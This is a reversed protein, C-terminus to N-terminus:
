QKLDKRLYDRDKNNSFTRSNKFNSIKEHLEKIEKLESDSIKKNQYLALIADLSKLNLELIMETNAINRAAFPNSEILIEVESQFAKTRKYHAYGILVLIPIGLGSVILVYQIFSPFVSVLFPIKEIALYYTVTLTNIAAFIFAFYTSWGM